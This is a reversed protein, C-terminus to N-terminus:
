AITAATAAADGLQANYDRLADDLVDLVAVADTVPSLLRQIFLPLTSGRVAAALETGSWSRNGAAADYLTHVFEHEELQIVV